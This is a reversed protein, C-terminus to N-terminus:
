NIMVHEATIYYNKIIMTKRAIEQAESNDMESVRHLVQRGGLTPNKQSANSHLPLNVKSSDQLLSCFPKFVSSKLISLSRLKSFVESNNSIESDNLVESNNSTELNNLVELNSSPLKGVNNILLSLANEKQKDSPQAYIRYSLESKHGTLAMTTVMPVCKSSSPRKSFYLKFNYILGQCGEPDPPVSIVLADSNEDIGDQDNKQFNKHVYLFELFCGKHHLTSSADYQFIKKLEEYIGLVFEIMKHELQSKNSIMEIRYNYRVESCWAVLIGVWKAT